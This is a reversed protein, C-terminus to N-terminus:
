RGHGDIVDMLEDVKSSAGEEDKNSYDEIDTYLDAEDRKRKVSKMEQSWDDEVQQFKGQALSEVIEANPGQGTRASIVCTIYPWVTSDFVNKLKSIAAYEPGSPSLDDRKTSALVVEELIDSYLLFDDYLDALDIESTFVSDGQDSALETQMLLIQEQLDKYDDEPVTGAGSNIRHLIRDELIKRLEMNALYIDKIEPPCEIEYFETLFDLVTVDNPWWETLEMGELEELYYDAIEEEGMHLIEPDSDHIELSQDINTAIASIGYRFWSYTIPLEESNDRVAFFQYKERKTRNREDQWELGAERVAIELGHDVRKLLASETASDTPEM